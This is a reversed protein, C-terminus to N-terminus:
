RTTRRGDFAVRGDRLLIARECLARGRRTTSVFVITGGDRKFDFIQRPV